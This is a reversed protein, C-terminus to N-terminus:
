RGRRPSGAADPRESPAVKSLGIAIARREVPGPPAGPPTTRREITLEARVPPPLLPCNECLRGLRDPLLYHICCPRRDQVMPVEPVGSPIWRVRHRMPNPGAAGPLTRGDLFAARDELFRRGVAPSLRAAAADSAIAIWEAANAWLLSRPIRMVEHVRTFFPALHAAYLRGGVAARLADLSPISPALGKWAPARDPWAAPDPWRPDCWLGRPVGNRLVLTCRAASLDLALGHALGVFAVVTVSAAYQRTFRSAAPRLDGRAVPGTTPWSAARQIAARLSGPELFREAPVLEDGEGPRLVLRGELWRGLADISRVLGERWDTGVEPDGLGAEADASTTPVQPGPSRACGCM